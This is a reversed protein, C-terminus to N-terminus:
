WNYIVRSRPDFVVRPVGTSDLESSVPHIYLGSFDRAEIRKEVIDIFAAVAEKLKLYREFESDQLQVIFGIYSCGELVPEISASVALMQCARTADSIATSFLPCM